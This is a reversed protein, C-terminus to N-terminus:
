IIKFHRIWDRRAIDEDGVPWSRQDAKHVIRHREFSIGATDIAFVQGLPREVPGRVATHDRAFFRDHRNKANGVAIPLSGKDGVCFLACFIQLQDDTRFLVHGEIRKSIGTKNDVAQVMLNIILFAVTVKGGQFLRVAKVQAHGIGEQM